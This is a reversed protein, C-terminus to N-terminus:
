HSPSPVQRMPCRHLPQLVLVSQARTDRLKRLWGQTVVTDSNLLVVDSRSEACGINVTRTYGLNEKNQVARVFLHESAYSQLLPWIDPDTSCDDILVLEYPGDTQAIVSDICAGVEDLANFVPIVITVMRAMYSRQFLLLESLAAPGTSFRAATKLANMSLKKRAPEDRILSVAAAFVDDLNSTDVVKSNEGDIAYESVGGKWRCFRCVVLPWPKWVPVALHRISPCILSFILPVWATPLTKAFSCGM